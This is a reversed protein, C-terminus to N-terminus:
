KAMIVFFLILLAIPILLLGACLLFQRLDIRRDRKNM